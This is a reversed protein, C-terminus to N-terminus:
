KLNEAEARVQQMADGYGWLDGDCVYEPWPGINLVPRQGTRIYDRLEEVLTRITGGNTFGKWEYRHHTYIRRQSYADIFWIRGRDDAEFTSVREGYRFFQRGCGAIVALFGNVLTARSRKRQLADM